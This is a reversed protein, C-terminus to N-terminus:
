AKTAKVELNVENYCQRSDLYKMDVTDFSGDERFLAVVSNRGVVIVAGNERNYAKGPIMQDRSVTPVNALNVVKIM